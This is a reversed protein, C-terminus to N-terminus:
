ETRQAAPFIARLLREYDGDDSLGRSLPLNKEALQQLVEISRRVFKTRRESSPVSDITLGKYWNEFNLLEAQPDHNKNILNSRFVLCVRGDNEELWCALSYNHSQSKKIFKYKSGNDSIYKRVREAFIARNEAKVTITSKFM